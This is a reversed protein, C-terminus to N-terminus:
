CDTNRIGSALDVGVVTYIRMSPIGPSQNEGMNRVGCLAAVERSRRAVGAMITARPTTM